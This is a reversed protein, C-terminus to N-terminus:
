GERRTVLDALLLLDSARGPDPITDALLDLAGAMLEAAQTQAWDRAGAQEVADAARRLQAATLQEDGAYIRALEAGAPTGSTLAAVVPLSKKRAALDAGAPKGTRAPDGWIGILDDIFQFALGLRRGFVDLADAVDTSASAYLAGIACASGLLAGTKAEVMRLCERLTVDARREFACDAQQGDCLEAIAQALRRAAAPAAPHTDDALLRLALAHLADGALIADSIGFVAWATPQHRRMPDGDLVDDHLLTFNHALEVAVAGPLAPTTVGGLARCTSLVLAPRVAKGANGARPTGDPHQWGLHYAAVRRMAMPLSDVATRLVPEIQDRVAALLPEAGHADSAPRIPPLPGHPDLATRQEPLDAHPRRHASTPM